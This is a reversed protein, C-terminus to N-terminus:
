ENEKDKDKNNKSNLHKDVSINLNINRLDYVFSESFSKLLEQYHEGLFEEVGDKVANWIEFRITDLDLYESVTKEIHDMCKRHAYDGLDLEEESFDEQYKKSGETKQDCESCIISIEDQFYKRKKPECICEKCKKCWVAGCKEEKEMAIM